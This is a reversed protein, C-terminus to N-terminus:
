VGFSLTWVEHKSKLTPWSRRNMERLLGLRRHGEILQLPTKMLEGERGKPHQIGEANLAVIIPVPYTGNMSMYQALKQHPDTTGLLKRGVSDYHELEGDLHQVSMIEENTMEQLSFTWLEPRLPAWMDLFQLNHRYVWHEIVYRPFNCLERPWRSFYKEFPEVEFDGCNRVKPIM